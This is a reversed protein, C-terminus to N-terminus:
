CLPISYQPPQFIGDLYTNTVRTLSDPFKNTSLILYVLVSTQQTNPIVHNILWIEIKAITSQSSEKKSETELAKLQKDIYCSGYCMTINKNVCYNEAIEDQNLKLSIYMFAGSMSQVLILLALFILTLQKM